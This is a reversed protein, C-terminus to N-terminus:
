HPVTPDMCLVLCRPLHACHYHVSGLTCLSPPLDGRQPACVPCLWITVMDEFLSAIAQQPPCPWEQLGEGLLELSRSAMAPVHRTNSSWRSAPVLTVLKGAM